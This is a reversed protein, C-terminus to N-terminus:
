QSLDFLNLDHSWDKVDCLLSKVMRHINNCCTIDKIQLTLNKIRNKATTM